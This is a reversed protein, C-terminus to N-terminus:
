SELNLIQSNIAPYSARSSNQPKTTSTQQASLIILQEEPKMENLPNPTQIVTKPKSNNNSRIRPKVMFSMFPKFTLPHLKEPRKEGLLQM